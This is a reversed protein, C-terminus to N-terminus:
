QLLSINIVTAHRGMKIMVEKFLVLLASAVIKSYLMQM